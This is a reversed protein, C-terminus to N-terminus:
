ALAHQALGQRIMPLGATLRLGANRLWGAGPLRSSFLRQLGDTVAIMSRVDERRAREYRRLLPLVGCDRQSGRAGLVAALERVDRFGLNVGQGALPHVNHAADGVLALRPMVFRDAAMARLPFSGAPTVCTLAGLAGGAAAAVRIALEDPPLDMLDEAVAPTASWVMSVHGAPLPLLALVGDERFWQRAIGGHPLEARFNAVVATQPYSRTRVDFGAVERVWSQAGDAGVVLKAAVPEGADFRLVAERDTVQLAVPSSPIRVEIREHVAVRAALAAALVGSEVIHALAPVGSELADFRLAAGPRDGFVAMGLVPQVRAEPLPGWAGLRDIMAASGPSIAYIRSDLRDTPSPPMAAGLLVVDLGAEAFALAAALGVLGAGVVAIDRTAPRGNPAIRIETTSL